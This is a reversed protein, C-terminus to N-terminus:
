MTRRTADAGRRSETAPHRSGQAARAPRKRRLVSEYVDATRRALAETSYEREVRSRSAAAFRARKEADDLLEMIRAAAAADDDPPVVYGTEGDVILRRNDSVDTAIVPLGSAMAELVVNPTGEFNSCLVKLDCANYLEVVDSRDGLFRVRDGIGHRAVAERAAGYRTGAGDGDPKGVCLFVVDDRARLVQAAAEIYMRHNKNGRFHAFMGVLRTAPPVGLEARKASGDRPAFRTTDVGNPIVCLRELAIGQREHEFDRGAWSNAIMMDFCGATVRSLWLKFRRRRLHPCRNSDIVAPVGALRGALRGVMEADFMYSHVVDIRLRKLLRAMRFVLGWDYKGRKAEVVFRREADRLQPALPNDHSMSCVVVRYRTEDLTNALEVVQREAGGRELSSTLLMVGVRDDGARPVAAGRGGSPVPGIETAQMATRM